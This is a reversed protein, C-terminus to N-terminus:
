LLVAVIYVEVALALVSLAISVTIIRRYRRQGVERAEAESLRWDRSENRMELLQNNTWILADRMQDGIHEVKTRLVNIAAEPGTAEQVEPSITPLKLKSDIREIEEIASRIEVAVVAPVRMPGFQAAQVELEDLRAKIAKRLRRLQQLEEDLVILQRQRRGGQRPDGALSRGDM